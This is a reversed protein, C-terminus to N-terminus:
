RDSAGQSTFKIWFMLYVYNIYYKPGGTLTTGFKNKVYVLGGITTNRTLKGVDNCFFNGM